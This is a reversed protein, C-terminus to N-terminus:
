SSDSAALAAVQQGLADNTGEVLGLKQHYKLGSQTKSAAAMAAKAAQRAESLRGSHELLAARMGSAQYEEIPFSPWDARSDLLALAPAYLRFIQADVVLAVFDLYATTRVSPQLREAEIAAEYASLAGPVDGLARLAQAKQVQAQALDFHAGLAFYQELLSLAAQPHNDTLYSAQIRLYQAKDRARRLRQHFTSAIEDNWTRSRFWDGKSM